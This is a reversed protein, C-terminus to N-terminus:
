PWHGLAKKALIEKTIVPGRDKSSMAFIRRDEKSLACLSDEPWEDLGDGNAGDAEINVAALLREALDEEESLEIPARSQAM